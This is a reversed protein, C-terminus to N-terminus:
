CVHQRWKELFALVGEPATRGVSIHREGAERAVGPALSEAPAVSLIAGRRRVRRAAQQYLLSASDTTTHVVVDVGGFAASSEAFLREVDLDDGLDARVAVVKGDAALIEGVAAEATPQHGLYVVVIAWGWGALGYAIERGAGVSGGTVIAVVDGRLVTASSGGCGNTQIAV